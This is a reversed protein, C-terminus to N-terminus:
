FMIRLSFQATRQGDMRQSIGFNASRWSGTPQAWFMWKFLNFVEGIVQITIDRGGVPVTFYKQLAINVNYTPFWRFADRPVFNQDYYSMDDLSKPYAPIAFKSKDWGPKGNTWTILESYDGGIWLPRDYGDGDRNWDDSTSTSRITFPAGSTYHFNGSLQWGAIINKMIWNKSEKFFPIDYVFGGVMRHRRDFQAYGYEDGLRDHCVAEM